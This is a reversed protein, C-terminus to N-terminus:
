KDREASCVGARSWFLIIAIGIATVRPLFHVWNGPMDKVEPHASAVGPCVGMSTNKLAEM